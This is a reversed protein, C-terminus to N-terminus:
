ENKSLKMHTYMTDQDYRDGTGVRVWAPYRGVPGKRGEHARRKIIHDRLTILAVNLFTSQHSSGFTVTASTLLGLFSSSPSFFSLLLLGPQFAVDAEGWLSLEKMLYDASRNAYRYSEPCLPATVSGKPQSWLARAFADTDLLVAIWQTGWPVDALTSLM